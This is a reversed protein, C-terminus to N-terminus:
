RSKTTAAPQADAGKCKFYIARGDGYGCKTAVMGGAGYTTVSAQLEDIVFYNDEGGCAKAINALAQKKLEVAYSQINTRSCYHAEGTANLQAEPVGLSGKMMQKEAPSYIHAPPATVMGACGALTVLMGLGAFVLLKM